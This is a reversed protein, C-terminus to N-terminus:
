QTAMRERLETLWNVAVVISRAPGSVQQVMVFGRDDPEVDYQAFRPFHHFQGRLVQTRGAIRFAAGADLRAEMLSDGAWYYLGRGDPAWVPENGGGQSVQWRGSAQPFTTVYVENTGTEDSTYAVWRGDPSLRAAFENRPTALFPRLATDSPSRLLLDFGQSEASSARVLLGGDPTIADIWQYGPRGIVLEANRGGDSRIRYDDSLAPAEHETGFYIWTGDGSWVPYRNKGGFTLRSTTGATRDFVYIDSSGGLFAVEFAIRHGDASFRPDAYGAADMPLATAVGSRDVLVLRRGGGDDRLYAAVGTPSVTFQTAGGSSVAVGEVLPVPDGTVRRRALDFPVGFVDGSPRGYVIYGPPVYSADTGEQIVVQREGTELNLVAIRADALSPFETVLAYRGGPLLFPWRLAVTDSGLPVDRPTGGAGAVVHLRGGSVFIIQDNDGWMIRGPAADSAVIVPVGGAALVKKLDTGQRFALWQGDPSFAPFVAGDETGAVRTVATGNSRRLFLGGTGSSDRGVFVLQSGDRSIDFQRGGGATTVGGMDLAFVTTPPSATKPTPRLWGWAALAGALLAVTTVALFAPQRAPRGATGVTGVTGVSPAFAPNRLADAFARASDFRDAPLRELAKAVAAAVNPPVSRRLESVPRAEDSVIKLLIAQVSAGTHPPEGALMEYLVSGLSYVDSRNTVHKDATAQEPSMYHPTGLSLGTETMRGGAAASVALAIGFDAVMPRGDHLLINEPKIDRHIVGHQHAYELADAVDTTIKVAEEIGLQTERDLKERLTEGDIFPMVYFLFGDATGSDFLPLIHPHQLSATTKIEVVFRDAGLVAALEPKLVKLAVKRDHKLDEALYVTAMGGQGLEREVRYRDALATSLKATIETM